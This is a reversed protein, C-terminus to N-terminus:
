NARKTGEFANSLHFFRQLSFSCPSALFHICLYVFLHCNTTCFFASQRFVILAMVNGTETVDIVKSPPLM